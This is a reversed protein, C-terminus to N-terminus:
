DLAPQGAVSDFVIQASCIAATTVVFHGADILLDGSSLVHFLIDVAVGAARAEAPVPNHCRRGVCTADNLLSFQGDDESNLRCVEEPAVLFRAVPFSWQTIKPRRSDTVEEREM